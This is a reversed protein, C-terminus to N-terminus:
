ILMLDNREKIRLKIESNLVKKAKKLLKQIIHLLKVCKIIRHNNISKNTTNIKEQLTAIEKDKTAKKKELDAIEKDLANLSRQCQNVSM